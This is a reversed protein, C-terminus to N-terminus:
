AANQPWFGFRSADDSEGSEDDPALDFDGSTNDVFQLEAAQDRQSRGAILTVQRKQSQYQFIM